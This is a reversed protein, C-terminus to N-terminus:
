IVIIEMNLNGSPLSLINGDRKEGNYSWSNPANPSVWISSSRPSRPDVNSAGPRIGLIGKRLPNTKNPFDVPFWLNQGDFITNEQLNERLGIWQNGAAM